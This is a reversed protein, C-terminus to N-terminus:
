QSILPSFIVLIPNNAFRVNHAVRFNDMIDHHIYKLLADPTKSCYFSLDCSQNNLIGRVEHKVQDSGASM